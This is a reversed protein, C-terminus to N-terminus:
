LRVMSCAIKQLFQQLTNIVIAGGSLQFDAVRRSCEKSGLQWMRHQLEPPSPFNQVLHKYASKFCKPVPFLTSFGMVKMTKTCTNTRARTHMESVPEIAVDGKM